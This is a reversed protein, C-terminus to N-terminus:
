AEIVALQFPMKLQFHVKADPAISNRRRWRAYDETWEGRAQMRRGGLDGVVALQTFAQALVHMLSSIHLRHMDLSNCRHLEVYVADVM